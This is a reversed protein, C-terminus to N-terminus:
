YRLISAARSDHDVTTLIAASGSLSKELRGRRGGLSEVEAAVYESALVDLPSIDMLFLVCFDM